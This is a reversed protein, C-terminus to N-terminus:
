AYMHADCTSHERAHTCAQPANTHVHKVNAYLYVHRGICASWICPASIRRTCISVYVHMCVYMCMNM